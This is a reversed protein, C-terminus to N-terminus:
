GRTSITSPSAPSSGSGSSGNETTAFRGKPAPVAIRRRRSPSGPTRSVCSSAITSHPSAEFRVATQGDVASPQEQPAHYSSLRTRRTGRAHKAGGGVTSAGTRRAIRGGG